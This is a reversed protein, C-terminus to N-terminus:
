RERVTVRGHPPAQRATGHSYLPRTKLVAVDPPRIKVHFRRKVGKRGEVERMRGEDKGEVCVCRSKSEGRKLM